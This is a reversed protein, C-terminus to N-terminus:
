DDIAEIYECIKCEWVEIDEDRMLVREFVGLHKPEHQKSLDFHPFVSAESSEYRINEKQESTLIEPFKQILKEINL